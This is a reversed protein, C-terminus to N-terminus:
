AASVRGYPGHASLVGPHPQPTGAASYGLDHGSVLLPGAGVEPVWLPGTLWKLPEESLLFQPLSSDTPLCRGKRPVLYSPNM